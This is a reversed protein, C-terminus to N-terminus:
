LQLTSRTSRPGGFLRAYTFRLKFLLLSKKKGATPYLSVQDWYHTWLKDKSPRLPDIDKEPGEPILHANPAAKGIEDGVMDGAASRCVMSVGGRMATRLCSYMAAHNCVFNGPRRHRALDMQAALFSFGSLSFKRVSVPHLGVIDELAGFLREVSQLLIVLDAKLYWLLYQRVNRFGLRAFESRAEDVAEQPPAKQKLRSFWDEARPPLETADLFEGDDRLLDFPFLGKKVDELGVTQCLKDLSFGPALMKRADPFFFIILRSFFRCFVRFSM